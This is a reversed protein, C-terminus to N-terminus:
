KRVQKLHTAVIRRIVEAMSVGDAIAKTKLAAIQEPPMYLDIRKM